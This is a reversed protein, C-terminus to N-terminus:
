SLIGDLILNRGSPQNWILSLGPFALSSLMITLTGKCVTIRPLTQNSFQWFYLMGSPKTSKDWDVTEILNLIWNELQWCVAVCVDAVLYVKPQADESLWMLRQLEFLGPCIPNTLSLSCVRIVLHGFVSRFFLKLALSRSIPPSLTEWDTWWCKVSWM